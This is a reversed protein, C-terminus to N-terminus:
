IKKRLKFHPIGVEEFREGIQEYDQKLYFPVAVERANLVIESFNNEKAWVESAAVMNHGVGRNQFKNAVAVQRMKVQGNGVDKMILSGMLEGSGDYCGLHTSNWEEAIDEAYFEMNLPVRLIDNRLRLNEDFAPTAFEIEQTQMTLNKADFLEM